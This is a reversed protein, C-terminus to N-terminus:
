IMTRIRVKMKRINFWWLFVMFAILWIDGAPTLMSNISNYAGHFLAPLFLSLLLFHPRPNTKLKALYYGMTVGFLVHASVPLLARTWIISVTNGNMLFVYFLNEVTAFGASVAVAYVIGDFLQKFEVHHCILGYMLSWKVFEELLGSYLVSELWFGDGLPALVRQIVLLPFVVLGGAIFIKILRSLPETQHQGKLYFYALLSIGPAAAGIIKAIVEIYM